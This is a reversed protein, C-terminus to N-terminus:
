NTEEYQQILTLLSLGVSWPYSAYKDSYLGIGMCEGQAQIVLGEESIYKEIGFESDDLYRVGYRIMASASTDIPSSEDPLISGWMGDEKKYKLLTESFAARIEKLESLCQHEMFSLPTNHELVWISEEIGLMIWGCARGWGIAGSKEGTLTYVHFPLSTKEDLGYKMFSRIQNLGLEIADEDDNIHGYHIAFPAVMGVGDAFIQGTKQGPRYPLCGEADKDHGYLFSMMKDSASKYKSVDRSNAEDSWIQIFLLLAEGTLCDDVYYTNAGRRIWEDLYDKVAGICKIAIARDKPNDSKNLSCACHMLGLMLSGKPWSIIDIPQIAQRKIVRRAIRRIRKILNPDETVHLERIAEDIVRTIM